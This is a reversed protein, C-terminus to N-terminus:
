LKVPVTVFYFELADSNRPTQRCIDTFIGDEQLNFNDQIRCQGNSENIENNLLCLSYSLSNDSGWLSGCHMINQAVHLVVVLICMVWFGYNECLRIHLTFHFKTALTYIGM